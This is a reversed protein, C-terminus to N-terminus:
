RSARVAARQEILRHKVDLLRYLLETTNVQMYVATLTQILANIEAPPYLPKLPRITWPALTGSAVNDKLFDLIQLVGPDSGAALSRLLNTQFCIVEIERIFPKLSIPKKDRTGNTLLGFNPLFLRHVDIEAVHALEHTAYHTDLHFSPDQEFTKQSAHINIVLVGSIEDYGTAPSEAKVFCFHPYRSRLLAKFDEPLQVPSKIHATYADLTDAHEQALNM